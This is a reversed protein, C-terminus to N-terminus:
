SVACHCDGEVAREGVLFEDEEAFKQGADGFGVLRHFGIMEVPVERSEDAQRLARGDPFPHQADEVHAATGFGHKCISPSLLVQLVEDESAEVRDFAVELRAARDVRDDVLGVLVVLELRRGDGCEGGERGAEPLDHVTPRAQAFFVVFREGGCQDANQAMHGFLKRTIEQGHLLLEVFLTGEFIVVVREAIKRFADGAHGFDGAAPAARFFFPAFPRM